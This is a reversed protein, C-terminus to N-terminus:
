KGDELQECVRTPIEAVTLVAVCRSYLDPIDPTIEVVVELDDPFVPERIPETSGRSLGIIVLPVTFALIMLVGFTRANV